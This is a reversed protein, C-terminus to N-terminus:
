KARILAEDPISLRRRLSETEKLFRVADTPYGATPALKPDHALFFANFREMFLERVLKAAMSALAVAFCSREAKETFEIFVRRDDLTVRYASRAATEMQVEPLAVGLLASLRGAYFKRGGQRDVVVRVTEGPRARQLTTGLLAGVREWAVDAKNGLVDLRANFGRADLASVNLLVTEIRRESLRSQLETLVTPDFPPEAPAVAMLRGWPDAEVAALDESSLLAGPLTARAASGGPRSAAFAEVARRLRNLKDAGSYVRKSDDVLLGASRAGARTVVPALTTWLDPAVAAEAVRFVSLGHCLTGLTPGYGAEDIGGLLM